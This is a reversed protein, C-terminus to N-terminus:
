GGRTGIGGFGFCGVEQAEQGALRASFRHSGRRNLPNLAEDFPLLLGYRLRLDPM